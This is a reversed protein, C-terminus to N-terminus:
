QHFSYTSQGRSPSRRCKFADHSALFSLFSPLSAATSSQSNMMQVEPVQSTISHRVSVDWASQGILGKDFGSYRTEFACFGALSLSILVTAIGMVHALSMFCTQFLCPHPPRTPSLNHNTSVPLTMPM